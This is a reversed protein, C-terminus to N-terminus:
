PPCPGIYEPGPAACLAGGISGAITDAITDVFFGVSLNALSCIIANGAILIDDDEVQTLSVSGTEIRLDGTDVDTVFNLPVDTKWTSFSGPASTFSADCNTGLVTIRVEKGQVTTVDSLATVDYRNAGVVETVTRTSSVAIQDAPPVPVGNPCEIAPNGGCSPAIDLFGLDPFLLSAVLDATEQDMTIPTEVNFSRTAPTIDVNGVEDQARVRFTYSDDPLPDDPTFPSTCPKFKASTLRCTFTGPESSEFTFSPNHDETQGSPGGTIKTTPGVTDVTFGRKAPTPDVVGNKRARVRFKHDGQKLRTYEKPSECRKWDSDDLKCEFKSGSLSSTFKFTASRKAIVGSPGKTISTKPVAAGALGASALILGAVLLACGSRSTSM